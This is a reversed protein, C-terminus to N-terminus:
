ENRKGRINAKNLKNLFNSECDKHKIIRSGFDFPKGDTEIEAGTVVRKEGRSRIEVKLKTIPQDSGEPPIIKYNVNAYNKDGFFRELKLSGQSSCLQDAVQSATSIAIAKNIKLYGFIGAALLVMTTPVIYRLNSLVFDVADSVKSKRDVFEEYSTTRNEEKAEGTDAVSNITVQEPTYEATKAFDTLHYTTKENEEAKLLFGKRVLYDLQTREAWFYNESEDDLYISFNEAKLVERHEPNSPDFGKNPFHDYLKLLINEIFGSELEQEIPKNTGVSTVIYDGNKIETGTLNELTRDSDYEITKTNTDQM